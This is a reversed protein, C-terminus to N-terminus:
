HTRVTVVCFEGNATTDGITKVREVNQVSYAIHCDLECFFKEEGRAVTRDDSFHSFVALLLCYGALLAAIAVLPYRVWARRAFFVKATTILLLSILGVSGLFLLAALHSDFNVNSYM